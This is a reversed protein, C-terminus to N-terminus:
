CSVRQPFWVLWSCVCGEVMSLPPQVVTDKDVLGSAFFDDGAAVVGDRVFVMTNALSELDELASVDEVVHLPEHVVM